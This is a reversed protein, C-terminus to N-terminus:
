RNLSDCVLITGFFLWESKIKKKENLNKHNWLTKILALERESLLIHYSEIIRCKIGKDFNVIFIEVTYILYNLYNERHILM